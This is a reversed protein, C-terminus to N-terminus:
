KKNSVEYDTSPNGKISSRELRTKKNDNFDNDKTNKVLDSSENQFYLALDRRSQENEQYLEDVYAKTLVQNDNVAQTNM